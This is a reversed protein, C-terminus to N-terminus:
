KADKGTPRKVLNMGCIPCQGPGNKAVQPHMTCTWVEAAAPADAQKAAESAKPPTAAGSPAPMAGGHHHNALGETQHEEAPQAETSAAVATLVPTLALPTTPSAPNAPHGRPVDPNTSVCASLILALSTASFYALQKM